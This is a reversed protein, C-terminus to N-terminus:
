MLCAAGPVVGRNNGDRCEFVDGDPDVIVTVGRGDVVGAPPTWDCSVETCVSPALNRPLTTECAIPTSEDGEHFVVRAGDSVPNTGRNCVRARLTIVGTGLTCLDSASAVAVTLDAAGRLELSGQANMRFNNLTPDTHNPAWESTRPVAGDDAVHTVAYAHQNWIPRSAAWGDRADRLVRFGSGAVFRSTGRTFIPDTAPCTVGATM